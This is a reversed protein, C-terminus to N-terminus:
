QSLTPQNLPDCMRKGDVLFYYYYDGPILRLEATYLGPRTERLIIRRLTKAAKVANQGTGFPEWANWATGLPESENWNTGNRATEDRRAAIPTM